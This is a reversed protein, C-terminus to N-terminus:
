IILSYLFVEHEIYCFLRTIEQLLYLKILKISNLLTVLGCANYCFASKLLGFLSVEENFNILPPM